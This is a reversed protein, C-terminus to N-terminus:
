RTARASTPTMWSLVSSSCSRGPSRQCPCRDSRTRARRTGHRTASSAPARTPTTSARRSTSTAAACRERLSELACMTYAGRDIEGAKPEVLTRWPRSVFATPLLEPTLTRRGAAKQLARLADLIPEGADNALFTITDLLAPLYRRVGRYRSLVLERARDDPSRALRAMAGVAATLDDRKVAAFVADRLPEAVDDDLLVRCADM